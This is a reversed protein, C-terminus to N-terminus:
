DKADGALQVYVRGVMAASVTSVIAGVLGGALAVLLASLNFARPEGAALAAISGVVATAAWNLILGVLGLLLVLALLRWFSGKTLQWGRKILAIPGTTENAAIASAPFMRIWLFILVLSLLFVIWAVGPIKALAAPTVAAPDTIGAGVLASGLAITAILAIPFFVILLAAVLTPLRRLAKALAEGISGRWGSVLLVVTMQGILVALLVIIMLWGAGGGAASGPYAWNALVSPLAFTALAVPVVLRAEKGLFASTEEWAKGVSLKM